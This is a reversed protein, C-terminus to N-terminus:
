SWTDSSWAIRKWSNTAVCGYIYSSNFEIQGVKGTSTNTAPVTGTSSLLRYWTNFSSTYSRHWINGNQTFGLQHAAGASNDAWHTLNLVGHYSGGDALSDATNEKLHHSIGEYTFPSNNTARTDWPRITATNLIGGNITKGTLTQTSSIDAVRVGNVAVYGSGGKSKLDLTVDAGPGGAQIVAANQDSYVQVYGTGKPQIRILINTESGAAQMVVPSGAPAHKFVWSNVPNVSNYDTTTQFAAITAGNSNQIYTSEAGKPRVTIPISSDTGIVRLEVPNGAASNVLWFRNVASATANLELAPAGNSDVLISRGTTGVTDRVFYRGDLGYLSMSHAITHWVGSVYQLAVAQGPIALQFTSPGGAANFVDSGRRQILVANTSTDVKKVWVLSNNAPANPLTITFGGASADARVIDGVTASFAATKVATPTGVAAASIAARAASADTVELFKPM